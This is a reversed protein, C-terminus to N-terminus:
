ADGRTFTEVCDRCNHTDGGDVTYTDTGGCDPCPVDTDDVVDAMQRGVNQELLDGRVVDDAM